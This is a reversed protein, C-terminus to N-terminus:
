FCPTRFPRPPGRAPLRDARWSTWTLSRQGARHPLVTPWCGPSSKPPSRPTPCRGTRGAPRPIGYYGLVSDLRYSTLGPAAARALRVTDLLCTAALLPCHARQGALLGAETPASHAVLRRKGPAGLPRDLDALVDPAPRAAALMAATIATIRTFEATVPVGAPPRM